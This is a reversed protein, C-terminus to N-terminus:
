LPLLGTQVRVIREYLIGPLHDRIIGHVDLLLFHQFDNSGIGAVVRIDSDWVM